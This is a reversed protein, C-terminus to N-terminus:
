AFTRAGLLSRALLVGATTLVIAGMATLVPAHSRAQWRWDWLDRRDLRRLVEVALADAANEPPVEPQRNRRFSMWKLGM